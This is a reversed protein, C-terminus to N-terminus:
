SQEAVQGAVPYIAGLLVPERAGTFPHTDIPRGALTERAMWAFAIAEVWDPAIGLDATSSVSCESAVKGLQDMLAKNHAGGGCVYIEQPSCYRSLDSVITTVTFTLLTAQVDVPAIQLGLADLKAELWRGNFLERGTSKPLKQTFYSEGLLANLLSLNFQGQAAWAGDKDYELGQHKNIWYDMLVNGPGTDFALCKGQRPLVTINSIGGINIIVRDVNQSYFVERHLLPALPAGQGGAAMDRGRLDAVTAIGTRQAISNADGLQLTFPADGGPQHWVTQGHSGIAAIDQPTKGASEVLETVAQAFARGIRIHTEGLLSLSLGTGECLSLIDERLSHELASCHSAVLSPKGGAFDVLACDIGDVSTGSILGIFLDSDTM